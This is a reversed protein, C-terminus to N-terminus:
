DYIVESEEQTEYQFFKCIICEINLYITRYIKDLKTIYNVKIWEHM